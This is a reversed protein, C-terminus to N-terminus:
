IIPEGIIRLTFGDDVTAPTNPNITREIWIPIGDGSKLEKFFLPSLENYDQFDVSNPKVKTSTLLPPISNIPSGNQEKNTMVNSNDINNEQISLLEHFRNDDNGEFFVKFEFLQGSGDTFPTVKVGSLDPHGNLAVRLNNAWININSNFNFQLPTSDGYNLIVNGSTIVNNSSIIISQIETRNKIGIKLSSILSNKSIFLNVNHFSSTPHNNFLYVCRYDVSGQLSDITSVDGFLNNLTSSSIMVNSPNGGISLDPNNNNSGGSLFLAIDTGSVITTM